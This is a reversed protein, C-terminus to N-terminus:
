LDPNYWPARKREKCVWRGTIGYKAKWYDSAEVWEWKTCVQKWEEDAVYWSPGGWSTVGCCSKVSDATWTQCNDDFWYEDEVSWGEGRMKLCSVIDDLTADCCKKGGPLTRDCNTSDWQIPYETCGKKGAVAPNSCGGKRLECHRLSKLFGFRWCVVRWGTDNSDLGMPDRLIIPSSQVSQYLNMGDHYQLSPQFPVSQEEPQVGFRAAHTNLDPRTGLPDRELWRGLGPDYHGSAVPTFGAVVILAFLVTLLRSRTM